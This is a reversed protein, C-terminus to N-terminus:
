SGSVAAPITTVTKTVTTAGSALAQATAYVTKDFKYANIYEGVAIEHTDYEGIPVDSKYVVAHKGGGPIWVVYGNTKHIWLNRSKFHPAQYPPKHVKNIDYLSSDDIDDVQEMQKTFVNLVRM